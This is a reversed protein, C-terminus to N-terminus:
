YEISYEFKEPHNIMEIVNYKIVVTKKDPSLTAIPNDVKKAARPLHITITYPIEMGMDGAQKIQSFQPNELLAKFKDKDMKRSLFGNSCTFKYINNFQNIDPSSMNNEPTAGSGNGLSKLLQGTGLSSDSLSNYLQQLNSLSKFPFTMDTTFIKQDMNLKMNIKGDKVLEKKEASLNSLTDTFNKFYLTTDIMKQPIQKSMEDKGMYNQILDLLQGMDTHTVWLGSGNARIDMDENIEICGTLCSIFVLTLIIKFYKM